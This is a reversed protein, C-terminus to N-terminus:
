GPMADWTLLRPLVQARSTVGLKKLSREVYGRATHWTVGMERSIRKTSHGQSLHLVVECERETLGFRAVLEKPNPPFTLGPPSVWLLACNAQAVPPADIQIGRVPAERGLPGSHNAVFIPAAQGAENGAVPDLLSRARQLALPLFGSASRESARNEAIVKGSAGVLVAPHPFASVLSRAHRKWWINVHWRTRWLRLPSSVVRLIRLCADSPSGGSGAFGALVLHHHDSGPDLSVSVGVQARLEKLWPRLHGQEGTATWPDPIHNEHVPGTDIGPGTPSRRGRDEGQDSLVERSEMDLLHASETGCANRFAGLLEKRWVPSALSQAQSKELLFSVKDLDKALRVPM